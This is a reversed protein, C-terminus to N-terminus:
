ADKFYAILEYQFGTNSVTITTEDERYIELALYYQKGNARLGFFQNSATSYEVTSTMNRNLKLYFRHINQMANQGDRSAVVWTKQKLINVRQMNFRDFTYRFATTANDKWTGPIGASQGAPVTLDAFSSTSLLTARIRMPTATTAAGLQKAVIRIAIGKMYIKDGIFATDSPVVIGPTGTNNTNRPIRGFLHEVMSWQYSIPPNDILANSYFTFKKTEVQAFSVAQIM